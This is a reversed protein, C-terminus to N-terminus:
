RKMDSFIKSRKVEKGGNVGMLEKNKIKGKLIIDENKLAFPIEVKEKNFNTPILALRKELKERKGQCGSGIILLIITFIFIKNVM